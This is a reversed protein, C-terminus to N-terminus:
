EEAIDIGWPEYYTMSSIYKPSSFIPSNLHFNSDKVLIRSYAIVYKSM